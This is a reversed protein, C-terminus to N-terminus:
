LTLFYFSKKSYPSFTNINNYFKKIDKKNLSNSLFNETVLKRDLITKNTNTLAGKNVGNTGSHINSQANYIFIPNHIKDIKIKELLPM